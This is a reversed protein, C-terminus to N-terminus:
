PNITEGIEFLTYKQSLNKLVSHTSDNLTMFQDM